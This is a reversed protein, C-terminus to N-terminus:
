TRLHVSIMKRTLRNHILDVMVDESFEPHCQMGLVHDGVAFMEVKTRESSALEVAGPPPILVQFMQLLILRIYDLM